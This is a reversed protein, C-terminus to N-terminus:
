KSYKARRKPRRISSKTAKALLDKPVGNGQGAFLFKSDPGVLEKTQFNVSLYM